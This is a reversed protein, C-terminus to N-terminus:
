NLDLLFKIRRQVEALTGASVVGCFKGLREKSITRVQDCIIFSTQALGGEPPDIRLFSRIPRGKTTVPVVTVLDASGHNLINNSVILAPRIRGQEHGRVPDLDVRWVEGRSPFRLTM